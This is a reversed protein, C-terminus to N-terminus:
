IYSLDFISKVQMSRLGQDRMQGIDEDESPGLEKVQEATAILGVMLDDLLCKAM